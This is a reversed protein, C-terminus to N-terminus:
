ESISVATAGGESNTGTATINATYTANNTEGATCGLGSWTAHIGTVLGTITLAGTGEPDNRIDLGVLGNQAPVKVTCVKLNENSGSFYAEVEIEKGTPCVIDATVKYEVHEATTEGLHFVFDCGNTTVTAKHENENINCTLNNYNPTITATKAGSPIGKTSGVEHGKFTSGPCEVRVKGFPELNHIEFYNTGDEVGDLTVPGTSTIFGQQASAASAAVASLAFVAVLALGLAKLNRIM